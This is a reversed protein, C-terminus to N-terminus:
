NADHNGLIYLFQAFEYYYTRQTNKSYGKLIMKERLANLASKNIEGIKILERKSPLGIPADMGLLARNEKTDPVYWCKAAQNWQRGPIKKIEEIIQQDYKFHIFIVPNGEYEEQTFTMDNPMKTRRRAFILFGFSVM